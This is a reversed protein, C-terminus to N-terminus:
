HGTTTPTAPSTTFPTITDSTESPRPTPHRRSVGLGQRDEQMAVAQDERDLPSRSITLDLHDIYHKIEAIRSEDTLSEVLGVLASRLRRMVQVSGAGYQRIEDFSLRIFDEWNPTPYIVRVIGNRDSAHVEALDRCALRRLLDEIQDIAQVATTPDNVAPSLAKIAIDVLLRIPYKPDQRFTREYALDIARLLQRESLPKLAGRVRLIQSDYVLTDGVACDLEILADAQEALRILAGIDIRAIAQPAGKHRLAHTVLANRLDNALDPSTRMAPGADLRDFMEEIVAAGRVGIAHLTNTIQLQHVGRILLAFCLMSAILLLIVILMSFHPVIQSGDRDIWGLTILAYMFTASFLGFAHYLTANRIFFLSVRPSYAISHFQVTIYAVTFVIATLAMMGSAIASLFAQASAISFYEFYWDSLVVSHEILYEHEVRLFVSGLCLAAVVYTVPILWRPMIM